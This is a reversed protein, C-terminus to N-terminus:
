YTSLIQQIFISPYNLLLTIPIAYIACICHGGCVGEQFRDTNDFLSLLCVTGGVHSQLEFFLGLLSCLRHWLLFYQPMFVWKQFWPYHVELIKSRHFNGMLLECECPSSFACYVIFVFVFLCFVGFCHLCNWRHGDCVM